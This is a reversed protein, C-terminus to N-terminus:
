NMIENYSIERTGATINAQKSPIIRYDLGQPTNRHQMIAFVPDIGIEELDQIGIHTDFWTSHEAVNYFLINRSIFFHIPLIM